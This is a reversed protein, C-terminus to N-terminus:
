CSNIIHEQLNQHRRHRIKGTATFTSFMKQLAISLDKYTNYMKLDVKRLYPAGDMSVKVFNSGNAGAAAGAAPQQKETEEENIKVSQVTM